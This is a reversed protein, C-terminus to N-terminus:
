DIKVVLDDKEQNEIKLIRIEKKVKMLILKMQKLLEM